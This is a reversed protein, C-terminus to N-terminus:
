TPLTRSSADLEDLLQLWRDLTKERGYLQEGVDRLRQPAYREPAPDAAALREVAAAILDPRGASVHVGLGMEDVTRALASEEEIVALVPTGAKLYEIFKSPFAARYMGPALSVVGVDAATMTAAAVDLPQQKIFHVTKDVLEGAQVRLADFRAGSGMFVFTISQRDALLHAAKVVSDLGQFLGMNGAFLVVFDGEKKRFATSASAEEDTSISFNNIVSVNSVPGGRAAITDRMDESLVITRAAEIVNKADIRKLLTTVKDSKLMGIARASEPYLDMCHYVFQASTLRQLLRGVAGMIVPPITTVFILDNSQRRLLGYVALRAAFWLSNAAKGIRSRNSEPFLRIRRIHVGGVTDRRPLPPGSYIRHYSPQATFVSVDHGAEVFRRAMHDLMRAYTTADPLFHRHTLLIRM